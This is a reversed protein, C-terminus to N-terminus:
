KEYLHKIDKWQKQEYQPHSPAPSCLAPHLSLDSVGRNYNDFITDTLVDVGREFFFATVVAAAVFTSTKKFVANYAVSAIKDMASAPSSLLDTPFSLCAHTGPSRKIPSRCYLSAAQHRM